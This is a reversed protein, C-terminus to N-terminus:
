YCHLEHKELQGSVHPIETEQAPISGVDGANSPLNKVVPGGAFDGKRVNSIIFRPVSLNGLKSLVVCSSLPLALCKHRYDDSSDCSAPLLLTGM